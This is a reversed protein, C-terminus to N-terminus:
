NKREKYIYKADEIHSNMLIDGIKKSSAHAFYRHLHSAQKRIKNDEVTMMVVAELEDDKTRKTISVTLHGTETIVIKQSNGDIIIQKGGCDILMNAASMSKGSILLPISCDVIHVNLRFTQGCLEIPIVKREKATIKQGDGFKFDKDASEVMIKDKDEKSLSKEFEDIWFRGAVTTSAGTDLVGRTRTNAMLLVLDDTKASIKETEQEMEKSHAFIVDHDQAEEVYLEQSTGRQASYNNHPCNKAYHMRSDCIRCRSDGVNTM